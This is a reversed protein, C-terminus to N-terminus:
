KYYLPFDKLLLDILITVCVISFSTSFDTIIIILFFSSQLRSRLNRPGRERGRGREEINKKNQPGLFLSAGRPTGCPGFTLFSSSFSLSNYINNIFCRRRFTNTPIPFLNTFHTPPFGHTVKPYFLICISPRLILKLM